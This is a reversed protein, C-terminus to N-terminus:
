DDLRLNDSPLDNTIKEIGQHTKIASHTLSHKLARQNRKEEARDNQPHWLHYVVCAYKGSKRKIKQRILRIVLDADEHGWGTFKEDFGNINVLDQKWVALNCTKVGRWKQTFLCRLPGLPLTLASFLKNIKKHRYYQTLARAKINFHQKQQQIKETLDRNILIRNGDVFYQKKALKRHNSVFNPPLICDGDTFIIYNGKAKKIGENRAKAARFGEDPQWLYTLPYHLANVTSEVEQRSALSSGDDSILVEFNSDIQNNLSLLCQILM